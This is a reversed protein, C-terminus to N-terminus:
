WRQSSWALAGQSQLSRAQMMPSFSGTLPPTVPTIRLPSRHRLEQIQEELRHIRSDVAMARSPQVLPSGMQAAAQLSSMAAADGNLQRHVFGLTPERHRRKAQYNTFSSDLQLYNDSSMQPVQSFSNKVLFQRMQLLLDECSITPSISHRFATTMAGAAKSSASGSMDASTQDDKCGSIMVVEGMVAQCVRGSPRRLRSRHKTCTCRLTSSDHSCRVKFSLDLATGSHCCDFVVWLRSGEPLQEVLISHLEDDSIQGATKFDCPILTDDKGTLEDGSQDKAQGGHGSYHLFMEDGSGAGQVLWRMAALINAKTPMMDTRDDRLRCIQSDEFKFTDKLVATMTDSDNICGSLRGQGPTLSFYNIGITLAKRQGIRLPASPKAPPPDAEPLFPEAFNLHFEMCLQPVQEFNHHKLFRRMGVLLHHSSIDKKKSIVTRFATTM